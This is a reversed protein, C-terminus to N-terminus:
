KIACTGGIAAYTTTAADCAEKADKKTVNKYDLNLPTNGGTFTCACTYDKKCSTLILVGLFAVAIFKKM